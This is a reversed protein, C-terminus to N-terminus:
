CTVRSRDPSTESMDGVVLRFCGVGHIVEAQFVLQILEVTSKFALPLTRRVGDGVAGDFLGGGGAWCPSM